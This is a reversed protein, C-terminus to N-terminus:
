DNLGDIIEKFSEFPYAGNLAVGESEGSKMIVFYPTGSGGAAEADAGDKLVENKYKGSDLCSDINYGIEAAWKKLNAESLIEQNEFMKDHMEFYAKDGGKEGVCEAAEASIQALPHINSLPLDRFVLKVKGSDIYQSKLSPLTEVWFKKCFPCEYDSFEIITIPANEDGLVADDDIGASVKGTNSNGDPNEDLSVPSQIFYKGDKTVYIPILGGQYNLNVKYMGSETSVDNVTVEAGANENLFKAIKAGAEDPSISGGSFSTGYFSNAILVASLIGFVLTSIIWPNRRLHEIKLFKPIKIEIVEEKHHEHEM